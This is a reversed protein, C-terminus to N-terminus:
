GKTRRIPTAVVDYSVQHPGIRSPRWCQELVTDYKVSQIHCDVAELPGNYNAVINSTPCKHKRSASRKRHGQIRSVADNLLTDYNDM